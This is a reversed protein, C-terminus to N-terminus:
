QLPTQTKRKHYRSIIALDMINSEPEWTAESKDYGKWKILYQKVGDQIRDSLIDEVVYYNKDKERATTSVLKIHDPPVRRGLIAGTMDQVTYAGGRSRQVITYPGVYTPEWKNTKNVDRIMITSGPPYSSPTLIRRQKDLSRLLKDRGSKVRDSIAPYILSLIKHQHEQWETASILEGTVNTYDQFQNMSRGFMLSFPSSNILSSIKNNFSLQAFAIFAPWHSEVGHLLKYLVQKITQISREVKGDCRANYPTIFRHEISLINKLATMVSNSFEPGNDSQIIKPFGLISFVQFLENAVTTAAKDKLPRLVIFASFVDIIILLTSYDHLSKPLQISTDIQIHDWPGNSTISRAPHYGAKVITFKMCEDCNKLEEDIDKRIHPWWIDRHWLSKFIADRGFHGFLHEQRILHKREEISQPCHKGRKELEIQLEMKSEDSSHNHDDNDNDTIDVTHTVIHQQFDHILDHSGNITIANHNIDSLTNDIFNNNDINNIAAMSDNRGKGASSPPIDSQSVSSLDNPEHTPKVGWVMTSNTSENNNNNNNNMIDDLCHHHNMSQKAHVYANMYKRSLIDPLINMIGPRHIIKFQYELLIDLWYQLPLSLEESEFMYTLPKHDTYIVLDSRGWIYSHFKRLCYVVGYLEKKYVPWRVQHPALKRSCIAVINNATIHEDDQEPQYLVGGVGCASADTAIEFRRNFDPYKLIPATSVALKVANICDLYTPDNYPIHKENKISELHATIDSYHRVHQRVFGCLGLFSQLEKSTTPIPWNIIENVKAPDIRIGHQNIAHGLCRLETHALKSWDPKLKLNYKNLRDLVIKLHQHHEERSTSAILLNDIYPICFCLDGFLSSMVRQFHSTLLTLGFPAGVFVYQRRNWTFATYSQSEESLRFQLYADRLDLETFIMNGALSELLSRIHPILFRDGVILAKNLARVDLCPRVGRMNGQADKKPVVTIPNNYICGTPALKIKGENLWRNIVETAAVHLQQAIPYQPRFLRKEYSPDIKLTVVSSEANCFGHLSENLDLEKKLKQLLVCRFQHLHDTELKNPSSMLTFLTPNAHLDNIINSSLSEQISENQPEINISHCIVDWSKSENLKLLDRTLIADEDVFVHETNHNNMINLVENENIPSPPLPHHVIEINTNLSENKVSPQVSIPCDSGSELEVNVHHHSQISDVSSEAYYETPIGHPFLRRILDRGLTFHFDFNHRRMPLIEFEYQFKMPKRDTHPFLVQCCLNASGIRDISTGSHALNIRGGQSPKIKGGCAEAIGQEIFSVSAGTDLFANYINDGCAILITSSLSPSFMDSSPINDISMMSIHIDESTTEQTGVGSDISVARYSLSQSTNSSSSSDNRTNYSTSKNMSGNLAAKASRTQVNSKNPCVSMDHYPSRCIKCKTDNFQKKEENLSSSPSSSTMQNSTQSNIKKISWCEATSHSTAHPHHECRKVTSRNSDINNNSLSITSQHSKIKQNANNNKNHHNSHRLKSNHNDIKDKLDQGISRHNGSSKSTELRVGLDVLDKFTNFELPKGIISLSNTNVMDIKRYWEKKLTMKFHKIVHPDDRDLNLDNVYQLFRHSYRQITEDDKQKIDHYEEDLMQEYSQIEFHSMFEKKAEEWSLPPDVFVINDRVWQADEANKVAKLLLRPWHHDDVLDALLVQEYRRIFKHVIIGPYWEPLVSKSGDRRSTSSSSTNTKKESDNSIHNWAHYGILNSCIICKEALQTPDSPQGGCLFTISASCIRSAPGNNGSTAINSNNLTSSM